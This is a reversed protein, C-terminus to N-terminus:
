CDKQSIGPCVNEWQKLFEPPPLPLSGSIKMLSVVLAENGPDIGATKLATQIEPPIPSNVEHPDSNCDTLDTKKNNNNDQAM